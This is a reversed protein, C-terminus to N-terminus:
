FSIMLRIEQTRQARRANNVTSLMTGTNKSKQTDLNEQFTATWLKAYAIAKGPSIRVRAITSIKPGNGM